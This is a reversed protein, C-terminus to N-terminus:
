FQAVSYLTHLEITSDGLTPNGVSYAAVVPVNETMQLYSLASTPQEAKDAGSSVFSGTWNNILQGALSSEHIELRSFGPITYATAGFILKATIRLVQIVTDAGQAPILTVPTTFLALIQAASLTVVSLQPSEDDIFNGYSDIWDAFQAQTPFDNTEFFTKLTAKDSM